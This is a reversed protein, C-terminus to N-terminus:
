TPPATGFSLIPDVSIFSGSAADYYRAGVQTLGTTDTAKDLFTHDGQWTVATKDRANGFPDFRRQKLTNTKSAVAVM